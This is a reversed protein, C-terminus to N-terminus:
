QMSSAPIKIRIEAKCAGSNHKTSVVVRWLCALTIRISEGHLVKDVIEGSGAASNLADVYSELWLIIGIEADVPYSGLVYIYM